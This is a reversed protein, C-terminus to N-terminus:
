WELSATHGNEDCRGTSRRCNPNPCKRVGKVGDYMLFGSVIFVKHCCPCRFAANNGNLDEDLGLHELDIEKQPM